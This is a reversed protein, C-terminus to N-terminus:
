SSWKKNNKINRSHWYEKQHWHNRSKKASPKISCRIHALYSALCKVVLYWFFVIIMTVTAQPSEFDACSAYIFSLNVCGPLAFDLREPATSAEGFINRTEEANGKVPTSCTQRNGIGQCPSPLFRPCLFVAWASSCVNSHAASCSPCLGQLALGLLSDFHDRPFLSKEVSRTHAAESLWWVSGTRERGSVCLLKWRATCAGKETDGSEGAGSGSYLGEM